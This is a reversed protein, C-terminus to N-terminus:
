TLAMPRMHAGDAGITRIRAIRPPVVLLILARSSARAGRCRAGFISLFRLPGFGTVGLFLRTMAQTQADTLGAQGDRTYWLIDRGEQWRGVGAHLSNGLYQFNCFFILETRSSQM